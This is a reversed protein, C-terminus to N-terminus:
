KLYTSYQINQLLSQFCINEEEALIQYTAKKIVPIKDLQLTRISKSLKSAKSVFSFYLFLFLFFMFHIAQFQTRFM